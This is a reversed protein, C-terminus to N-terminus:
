PRLMCRIGDFAMLVDAVKTAKMGEVEAPPVDCAFHVIAWADPYSDLERLYKVIQPASSNGVHREFWRDKAFSFTRTDWGTMHSKAFRRSRVRVNVPGKVSTAADEVGMSLVNPAHKVLRPWDWTKRRM